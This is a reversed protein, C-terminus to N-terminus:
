KGQMGSTSRNEQKLEITIDFGVEFLRQWPLHIGTVKAQRIQGWRKFIHELEKASQTIRKKICTDLQEAIHPDTIHESNLSLGLAPLDELLARTRERAQYYYDDLFRMFLFELHAQTQDHSQDSKLAYLRIIAQALVSGLSNGATNWGGYAYLRTIDLNQLLLGGLILDSGNAYAVDAIAVPRDTALEMSLARVFEEPNRDPTEMERRTNTFLPDRAAQDLYTNVTEPLSQRPTDKEQWVLWQYSGEGQTHAPANVFLILDAEHPSDAILGDLPALHAKMLEHIPRDEYATILGPSHVCSYRPWVRLQFGAQRCLLSALLLCGIEDAGPYTIARDSLGSKRIKEQLERAQAINWGYEATDDQPLLLYDFVGEALWDLMTLNVAHNRNRGERYDEYVEDPISRRLTEREATEEASTQGLETKHELFSLRFIASGYTAWYEKEEESSNHRSIRQIVSFGLIPLEPRTEKIQRLNSLRQMVSSLSERSTRSPILGGYALTDVALILADTSASSDVLWEVLRAHQSPRWPNGLWERPPLQLDCGAARALYKPYDYNVPRDDLPLLTIVPKM